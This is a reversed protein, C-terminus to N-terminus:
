IVKNQSPKIELTWIKSLKMIAASILRIRRLIIKELKTVIVETM